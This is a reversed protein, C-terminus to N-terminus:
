AGLVKAVDMKRGSRALGFCANGFGSRLRSILDIFVTDPHEHFEETVQISAMKFMQHVRLCKNLSSNIRRQFDRMRGYFAKKFGYDVFNQQFGVLL